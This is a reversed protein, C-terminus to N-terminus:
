NSMAILQHYGKRIFGFAPELVDGSNGQPAVMRQRDSSKYVVAETARCSKESSDCKKDNHSDHATAICIITCDLMICAHIMVYVRSQIEVCSSCLDKITKLECLGVVFLLMMLM